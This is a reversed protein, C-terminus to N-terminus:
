STGGTDTSEECVETSNSAMGDKSQDTQESEKSVEQVTNPLVNTSEQSPELKEMLRIVSPLIKYLNRCQALRLAVGKPTFGTYPEGTLSTGNTIYERLDFLPFNTGLYQVVRPKWEQKPWKPNPVLSGYERIVKPPRKM